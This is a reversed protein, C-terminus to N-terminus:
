GGRPDSPHLELTTMTKACADLLLPVGEVDLLDLVRFRIGGFLDIMDRLIGVRKFSSLKLRGQLPPTFLPILTTDNETEDQFGVADWLIDLDQLHEFLGIFYIIQRRTGHPSRLSLGRVTPSFHGFYRRIKPMFSSIDLYCLILRQVNTLASFQRLTHNDFQKPSFMDGNGDSRIYLARIFPLLGLKHMHQLPNPWPSKIAWLGRTTYLTHHLHPFAVIYWSYCTLTCARLSSMDYTLHAIIMEVIEHPLSPAPSMRITSPTPSVDGSLSRRIWAESRYWVQNVLLEIVTIASTM